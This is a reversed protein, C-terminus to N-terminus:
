NVLNKCSFHLLKLITWLLIPLQASYSARQESRFVIDPIEYSLLEIYESIQLKEELWKWYESLPKTPRNHDPYVYFYSINADFTFTHTTEILYLENTIRFDVINKFVVKLNSMKLFRESLWLPIFNQPLSPKFVHFM